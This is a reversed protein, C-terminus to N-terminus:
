LLHVGKSADAWSRQSGAGNVLPDVGTLPCLVQSGCGATGPVPGAELLNVRSRPGWAGCSGVRSGSESWRHALVLGPVVQPRQCSRHLAPGPLGGLVLWNVWLLWGTVRPAM